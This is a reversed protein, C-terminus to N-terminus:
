TTYKTRELSCMSLCILASEVLAQINFARTDEMEGGGDGGEDAYRAGGVGGGADNARRGTYVSSWLAHRSSSGRDGSPRGRM